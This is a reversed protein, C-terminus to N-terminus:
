AHVRMCKLRTNRAKDLRIHTPTEFCSIGPRSQFWKLHFTTVASFRVICVVPWADPAAAAHEGHRADFPKICTAICLLTKHLCDRTPPRHLFCTGVCFYVCPSCDTQRLTGFARRYSGDASPIQRMSPSGIMTTCWSMMSASSLPCREYVSHRNRTICSNISKGDHSESDTVNLTDTRVYLAVKAVRLDSNRHLSHPQPAV